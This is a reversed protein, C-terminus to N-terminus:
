GRRSRDTLRKYESDIKRLEAPIDIKQPCLKVCRGCNVCSEPRGDEGLSRLGGTFLWTNGDAKYQNYLGFVRPIEVGAPCPMCYRCATCPVAAARRYIGLAEDLTKREGDTLPRFPSFTRINDELHEPLTMGSLVCLVNPLSAAFRLAWSAVSSEPDAKRLVEAAQPSLKALAGGRLPEMVIVPIGLRTLLEYQERSRYAEWDFYNLQIQAFDWPRSEAITKLVEPSDHFSFGLRRIKGARKLKELTECIRHKQALEWNGVGLSHVLYFDFYQTRCRKLQEDFIREVDSPKRVFWPPMKDTLFYSDRPYKALAKGAFVESRGGHYMYATDFYNIGAAMARDILKQGTVADIEQSEPSVRPMRMMGYGLLPVTVASDRYRRRTVKGNKQEVNEKGAAALRSMPALAAMALASKLFERRDM